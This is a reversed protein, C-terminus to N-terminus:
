SFSLLRSSPLLFPFLFLFFFFFHFGKTKQDLNQSSLSSSSQSGHRSHQPTTPNHRTNLRSTIQIESAISAFKLVNVTEDFDSDDPSINVIMTARGQGTFFGQDFFSSSCSPFPLFVHVPPFLFSFSFFFSFFLFLFSFSFLFSFFFFVQLLRTLKSERFPVVHDKGHCQNYRLAELCRGLVMLSGNISGAEKLRGGESGTRGQREAGAL